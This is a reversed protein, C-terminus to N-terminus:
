AEFKEILTRCTRRIAEDLAAVSKPTFLPQIVRRYGPHAPPDFDLPNLKLDVGLLDALVSPRHASFREADMFVENMVDPDTVIWGGEEETGLELGWILPPKGELRSVAVYPDDLESTFAAFSHPWILHAPIDPRVPRKSIDSTSMITEQIYRAPGTGRLCIRQM